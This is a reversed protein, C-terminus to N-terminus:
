GFGPPATGAQEMQRLARRMVKGTATLPLGAVFAVKRPYTYASGGAKVHAQLALALAADAAAGAKPVVYAKIAEGRLPDPVGIVACMAVSPHTMLRAEVEAPGIRYGASLILDDDRGLYWFRGQEDRRGLDGTKLWDGVYKAATAEPQNWYRLFMVPDPRRVAIEGPGGDPLVNGDADIIAVEHGPVAYGMAGPTAPEIAACTAVVLNCETQGYFENAAVGFSERVWELTEAGLSEGGSGMSRLRVGARRADLGGARMMKLATPPMFVNRVSHAAMIAAAREPDFKAMRSAVVPVGFYLSPLLVDLLGGIWAWDAPTWFRDNPQPFFDQPMQVGPLHGLLGRAAHLAGKPNGTTGSTYILFAPEEAKTDACLHADSARAMLAGLDEAGDAPGEVCLIAKLDPLDDRILALKETGERDTVIAAAGSDALRYRLAEAGFLRFLPLSVAALRSAALHTLLTEPRQDLLVGVRDGRGVGKAALVRALRCSARKLDAFTRETARDDGDLAVLATGRGAEAHRDCCAHAVSFAAPVDWAFRARLGAIDAAPTLM